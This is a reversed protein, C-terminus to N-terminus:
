NGILGRGKSIGAAAISRERRPFLVSAMSSPRPDPIMSLRLPPPMSCVEEAEDVLLLRTLWGVRFPNEM